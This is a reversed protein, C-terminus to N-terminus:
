STANPTKTVDGTAVRALALATDALSDSEKKIKKELAVARNLACQPHIGTASYVALNCVPCRKRDPDILPSHRYKPFM